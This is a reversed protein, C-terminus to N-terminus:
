GNQRSPLNPWLAQGVGAPAQGPASQGAKSPGNGSVHTGETLKQAFHDLVRIFAQHNGAMTFDMHERFDSALKQDPLSDLLKAIRVTVEKGPGLKGKLDPHAISEDAWSKATEQFAKLPAAFAETALERYLDVAKQAEPQSLGLEKFLGDAKAKVEPAITFGEPLTYDEYKEPAGEAPPKEETKEPGTKSLLTAGDKTEVKPAPTQETQQTTTQDSGEPKPSQDVITGTPTREPQNPNPATEEAM